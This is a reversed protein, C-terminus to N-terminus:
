QILPSWFRCHVQCCIIIDGVHTVIIQYADLAKSSNWMIHIYLSAFM